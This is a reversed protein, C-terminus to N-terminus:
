LESTVYGHTVTCHKLESCGSSYAPLAPNSIAKISNDDYVSRRISEVPETTVDFMPAARSITRSRLKSLHSLLMLPNVTCPQLSVPGLVADSVAFPSLTRRRANVQWIQAVHVSMGSPDDDDDLSLLLPPDDRDDEDLEDLEDLLLWLWDDDDDDDSEDNELV